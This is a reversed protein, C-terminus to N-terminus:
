IKQLLIFGMPFINQKYQRNHEWTDIRLGPVQKARFIM